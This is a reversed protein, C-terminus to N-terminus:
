INHKLGHKAPGPFTGPHTRQGPGCHQFCGAGPCLRRDPGAFHLPRGYM